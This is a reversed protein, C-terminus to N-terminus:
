TMAFCVGLAWRGVDFASHETQFEINPTRREINEAAKVASGVSFSSRFSIEIVIVLLLVLMLALAWGTRSDSLAPQEVDFGGVGFAEAHCAGV